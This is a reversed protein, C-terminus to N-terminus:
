REKMIKQKTRSRSNGNVTHLNKNEKTKELNVLGEHNFSQDISFKQKCLFKMLKKFVKRNRSVAFAPRDESRAKIM